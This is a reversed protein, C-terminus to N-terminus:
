KKAATMAVWSGCEASGCAHPYVERVIDDALPRAAAPDGTIPTERIPEDGRRVYIASAGREDTRIEVRLRGAFHARM